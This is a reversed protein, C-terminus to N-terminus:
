CCLVSVLWFMYKSFLRDWIYKEEAGKLWFFIYVKENIRVPRHSFVIGKCFSEVRSFFFFKNVVHSTNSPSQLNDTLVPLDRTTALVPLKAACGRPLFCGLPFPSAHRPPLSLCLRDCRVFYRLFIHRLM